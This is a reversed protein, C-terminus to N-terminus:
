SPTWASVLQSSLEAFRAGIATWSIGEVHTLSAQELAAAHQPDSLLLNLAHAWADVSLPEDVYMSADGGFERHASISSALVPAGACMAELLSLGAGEWLSPLAVVAAEAYLLALTRIDVFGRHVIREPRDLEARWADLRGREVTSLPGAIQLEVGALDPHGMSRVLTEVNKHELMAGVTLVYPPQRPARAVSPLERGAAGIVSCPTSVRGITARLQLLTTNSICVVHDARRCALGVGAAYRLWLKWGYLGPAQLPGLDNVVMIAPVGVSRAPLEITPALLVDAGHNEILGALERERWALRRAFSRVTSPLEVVEVGQLAGLRDPVSTAVCVDIEPQEALGEVVGAVYTAIGGLEPKVIAADIFVKL